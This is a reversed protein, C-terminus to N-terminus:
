DAARNPRSEIAADEGRTGSLLIVAVAPQHKQALSLASRGDFSPLRYDSIIVDYGGAELAGLLQERTDVRDVEAVIKEKGLMARLLECDMIEDELHLIRLPPKM